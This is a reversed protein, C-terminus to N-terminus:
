LTTPNAEISFDILILPNPLFKPKIVGAKQWDSDTLVHRTPDLTFSRLGEVSIITLSHVLARM